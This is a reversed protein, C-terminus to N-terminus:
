PKVLAKCVGDRRQRVTEFAEAYDDLAFEHTILQTLANKNRELMELSKNFGNATAGYVGFVQAARFVFHDCELQMTQGGGAVGALAVRGAFRVGDLALKVADPRGAAEFVIDPGEGNNLAQLHKLPDERRINVAGTAGVLGALENREDRTGIVVIQSCGFAKYFSVALLGIPGPGIVAVTDGPAPATLEVGTWVCAGPETLAGLELSVGDPIKFVHSEAAVVYESFGGDRNFGMESPAWRYTLCLNTEGRRCYRCVGCHPLAKVTVRDGPQATSVGEGVAEIVGSFEHGLVVPYTIHTAPRLGDIAELDSTCIGCASIKILVEGAGCEARPVEALRLAGPRELTLAKM